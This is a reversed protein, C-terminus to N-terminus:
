IMGSGNASLKVAALFCATGLLILGTLQEARHRLKESLHGGLWLGLQASIFAQTGILVMALLLPIGLLGLSIGIALEDLSISLGLDIIAIGQTRALLKKRRRHKTRKNTPLLLIVGAIGIIIAATYGAYHGIFDGLGKGILVGVAPMVAEFGALTLSVRLRRKKPLGALSLAGSLVFTDLTLPIILALLLLPYDVM